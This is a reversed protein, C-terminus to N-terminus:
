INELGIVTLLVQVLGGGVQVEGNEVTIDLLLLIEDTGVLVSLQLGVAEGLTTQLGKRSSATNEQDHEVTEVVM